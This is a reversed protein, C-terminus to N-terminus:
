GFKKKLREYTRRERQERAKEKLMREREEEKRIRIREIEAKTQEAKKIEYTTMSFYEMPFEYMGNGWNHSWVEIRVYEGDKWMGTITEQSSINTCLPAIEYARKRLADLMEFSRKLEDPTFPREKEM